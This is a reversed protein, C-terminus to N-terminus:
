ARWQGRTEVEAGEKTQFVGLGVQPIEVGNNLTIIPGGPNTMFAGEASVERTWYQLNMVLMWTKADAGDNGVGADM